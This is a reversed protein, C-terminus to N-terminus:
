KCSIYEDISISKTIKEEIIVIKERDISSDQVVKVFCESFKKKM